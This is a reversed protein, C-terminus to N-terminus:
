KNHITKIALKKQLQNLLSSAEPRTLMFKNVIMMKTFKTGKLRLQNSALKVEFLDVEKYLKTIIRM